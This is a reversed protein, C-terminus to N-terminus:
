WRTETSAVRSASCELVASQMGLRLAATPAPRRRAGGGLGGGHCGETGGCTRTRTHGEGRELHVGVGSLLRFGLGEVRCGVEEGQVRFRSGWVGFGLGMGGRLHVPLGARLRVCLSLPGKLARCPLVKLRRRRHLLAANASDDVASCNLHCTQGLLARPSREDSVGVLSEDDPVLYAPDNGHGKVSVGRRCGLVLATRM